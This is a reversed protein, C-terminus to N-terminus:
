AKENMCCRKFKKQSGCPCKDNRGVHPGHPKFPVPVGACNPVGTNMEPLVLNPAAALVAAMALMAQNM